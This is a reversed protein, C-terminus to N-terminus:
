VFGIRNVGIVGRRLFVIDFNKATFLKGEFRMPEFPKTEFKNSVFKEYEFVNIGIEELVDDPLTYDQEVLGFFTFGSDVCFSMVCSYGTKYAFSGFVSGVFSGLMFPLCKIPTAIFVAEFAFGTGLSCGTIFLEEVRKGAFERKTLRGSAMLTADQVASMTLVVVSGIVTPNANKLPLGLKGSKCAITLASAITGRIGGLAGGKVAAFGIRKFDTANVEGTRILNSITAIIHPAVELVVSILAASLGAKLSQELIYDMKILEETSIGLEAPDFKNEKALRALQRAQIESLPFSQSGDPSKVGDTLNDLIQQYKASVEPRTESNRLIERQLLQQVERMKDSPILGYQGQYYLQNPNDPTARTLGRKIYNVDGYKVQYDRGFNTAIDVIGNDDIATARATSGKVAADVNHTGAHWKEAMFGKVSDISAKDIKRGPNNIAETLEAIVSEVNGVYDSGGFASINAGANKAFVNYGDVFSSM